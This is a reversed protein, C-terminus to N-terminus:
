LCQNLTNALDKATQENFSGSILANGDSIQENVSPASIVTGDLVIAFQDTPSTAGALTGTAQSFLVTGLPNFSVTVVWNTQNQPIGASATTVLQGEILRPGLLYKATGNAVAVDDRTCAFYPQDWVQPISDSCQYDAFDSLDTDSPTWTLQNTLLDQRDQQGTPLDTTPTSPRVDIGDPVMPLEKAQDESYTTAQAISYVRRFELQVTCTNTAPSETTQATGGTATITPYIVPQYSEGAIQRATHWVIAVSTVTVVVAVALGSIFGNRSMKSNRPHTHMWVLWLILGVIPVVFGLIAWGFSGSDDVPATLTPPTTASILEDSAQPLPTSALTAPTISEASSTPPPVPPLSSLANRDAVAQHVDDGGVQDLWTLLDPYANPHRAIETWLSPFTQAISMLDQASTTPDTVAVQATAIDSFVM